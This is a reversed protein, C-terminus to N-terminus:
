FKKDQEKHGDGQTGGASQWTVVAEKYAEANKGNPHRDLSGPFRSIDEYPNDDCQSNKALTTSREGRLM